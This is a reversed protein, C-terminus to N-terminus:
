SDNLTNKAGLRSRETAKTLVPIFNLSSDCSFTFYDETHTHCHSHFIISFKQQSSMRPHAFKKTTTNRMTLCISLCLSLSLSYPFVNYDRGNVKNTMEVQQATSHHSLSALPLFSLALSLFEDGIAFIRESVRWETAAARM